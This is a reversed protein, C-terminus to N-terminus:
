ALLQRRAELRELEDLQKKCAELIVGATALVQTRNASLGGFKLSEAEVLTKSMRTDAHSGEQSALTNIYSGYNHWTGDEKRVPGERSLYDDLGIISERGM